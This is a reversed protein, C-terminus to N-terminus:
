HRFLCVQAYRMGLFFDQDYEPSYLGEYSGNKVTVVPPSSVTQRVLSDRSHSRQAAHVSVFALLSCALFTKISSAMRDVLPRAPRQHHHPPTISSVQAKGALCTRGGDEIINLDTEGDEDDRRPAPLLCRGVMMVLVIDVSAPAKRGRLIRHRQTQRPRRVPSEVPQMVDM